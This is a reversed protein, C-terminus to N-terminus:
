LAVEVLPQRCRLQLHGVIGQLVILLRVRENFFLQQGPASGHQRQLLRPPHDLAGAGIDGSPLALQRLSIVSQLQQEAAILRQRVIAGAAGDIQM